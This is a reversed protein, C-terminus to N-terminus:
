HLVLLRRRVSYGLRSCHHIRCDVVLILLQLRRIHCDILGSLRLRRILTLLMLQWRNVTLVLKTGCNKDIFVRRYILKIRLFISVQDDACCVVHKFIHDLM